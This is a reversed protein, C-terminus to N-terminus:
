RDCTIRKCVNLEKCVPLAFQGYCTVPFWFSSFNKKQNNKLSVKKGYSFPLLPSVIPRRDNKLNRTKFTKINVSNLPPPARQARGM